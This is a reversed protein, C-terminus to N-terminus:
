GFISSLWNCFDSWCNAKRKEILPIDEKDLYIVGSYQRDVSSSTRTSNNKNKKEKIDFSLNQIKYINKLIM